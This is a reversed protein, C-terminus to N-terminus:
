LKGNNNQIEAYIPLEEIPRHVEETNEANIEAFNAYTPSVSDNANRRELDASFTPSSEAKQPNRGNKCAFYALMPLIIALIGFSIVTALIINM